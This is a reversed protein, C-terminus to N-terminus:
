AVYRRASAGWSHDARMGNLMLSRWLDTEAYLALAECIKELLGASHHEYFKFGNGAGTARDFSQITDELGGVGHVIPVTGYRLSYMQNLGCPEFRSPMLFMDSGAEIKHALENSFGVHVGVQLPWARRLSHFAREYAKEGSGLLIFAAGEALMQDAIDLILDFGKQDSLRSICGILPRDPNQPLGFSRLLDHKCVRKGSLDDTSFPAAIYGDNGPNWEEYDVGNLIGLLDSSRERLLGDFREGFEPTQIERSYQPSVTSLADSFVLGAKLASARSYFELGGKTKYLTAPLGLKPLLGPDFLGHFAMNHITFLTKTKAFATDGAYHTKLYAPVFGTMWDNLHILDLPEGFCRALELVARSFYAFREADDTEGYLNARSFYEPADIFYVPVEGAHDVYVASRRVGFDFPVELEIPTPEGATAITDLNYRPMVIGVKHGLKALAKPLAGAVDALGGTKVYPVVETAAFLINLFIERETTANHRSFFAAGRIQNLGNLSSTSVGPAACFYLGGIMGTGIPVACPGQTRARRIM